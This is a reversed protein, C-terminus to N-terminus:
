KTKIIKQILISNKIKYEKVQYKHVPQSPFSIKSTDEKINLPQTLESVPQKSSIDQFPQKKMGGGGGCECEKGRLGFFFFFM